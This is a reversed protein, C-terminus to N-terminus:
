GLRRLQRSALVLGLVLSLTAFGTLILLTPTWDVPWSHFLILDRLPDVAHTNPFLWSFWLVNERNTRVMSLGGGVFFVTLGTLITAIAGAFHQARMGFLLNLPVWFLIVLGALLWVAGLFRGPWVGLWAYLIGLLVTGTLLGMVLALLVKPLLVWLLSRPALGFELTVGTLHEKHTLMFINMMGGLMFSLLAVGVAIVPFWDIMEARPYEEALSVPPGGQGSTGEISVKEYFQWLIEASYIRHNKARDDNYNDFHMEIEPNQGAEMRQSFDAPIVWVGDLRHAHYDRWADEEALDLVDYYPTGFPSIVEDFTGRLVAGYPGQDHNLFAIKFTLRGGFLLGFAVLMFLPPIFGGLATIPDHRWAKLETKLLIWFRKM